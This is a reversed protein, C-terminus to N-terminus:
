FKSSTGRRAQPRDDENLWGFEMKCKGKKM